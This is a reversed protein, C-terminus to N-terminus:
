ALDDLEDELYEIKTELEAFEDLIAAAEFSTLTVNDNDFQIAISWAERLKDLSM